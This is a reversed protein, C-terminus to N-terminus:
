GPHRGYQYYLLLIIEGVFLGILLVVATILDAM